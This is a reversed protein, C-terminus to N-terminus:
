AEVVKELLKVLELSVGEKLGQILGELTVIRSYGSVIIGLVFMDRIETGVSEVSRFILSGGGDPDTLLLHGEVLTIRWDDMAPLDMIWQRKHPVKHHFDIILCDLRSWAAQSLQCSMQGNLGLVLTTVGDPILPLLDEINDRTQITMVQGARSVSDAYMWVDHESVLWAGNRNSFVGRTVTNHLLAIEGDRAGLYAPWHGNTQVTSYYLRKAGTDYWAFLDDFRGATLVPACSRGAILQLLKNERVQRTGLGFFFDSEVGVIRPAEGEFLEIWVHERTLGRLGAGEPAIRTFSWQAAVRQMAPLRDRHLLRTGNAFAAAFAEPEMFPQRYVQGSASDWLWAAKKDPTQALLQLSQSERMDAILLRRGVCWVRLFANGPVNQVGSVEFGESALEEALALVSTYWEFGDGVAAARALWDGNLAVLQSEDTRSLQYLMGDETLAIHRQEQFFVEVVEHPLIKAAPAPPEDNQLTVRQRYLSRHRQDYFLFSDGDADQTNLFIPNVSDAELNPRIVLGDDRRLWLSIPNRSDEDWYTISTLPACQYDVVSVSDFPALKSNRVMLEYDWFFYSLSVTNKRQLLAKQGETLKGIVSFLSLENAGLLYTMKMDRGNRLVVKQVIRILGGELEQFASIRSGPLPDMLRYIRNVQGTTVDTRWILVENPVYYYAYKDVIAGLCAAEQYAPALGRVFLFRDEDRDYQATTKVPKLPDSYPVPFDRIATYRGALRMSRALERLSAQAASANSGSDISIESILLRGQEWDVQYSQEDLQLLLSSKEPVHVQIAGLQVRAGEIKVDGEALWTASLAWYMSSADPTKVLTIARVGEALVVTCQGGKGLIEYSLYNHLERPLKPVRLFRNRRDLVVNVLTQSYNPILQHLVYETPFKYFSFWFQREGESDNELKLATEFHEWRSTSGPLAKYDFGFYCHPMCPLVVVDFDAADPIASEHAYGLSERISISLSRDPNGQPPHLAHPIAAFINLVGGYRLLRGELDLHTVVVYPSICLADDIRSFGGSRYGQEILNLYKGVQRARELIGSFGEVLAGIGVALGGLIVSAGGLFAAATGAGVLSAGLGGLGAVLGASDFALQTAFQAIQADNEANALLYIDFGVAALQLINGVGENAVHGLANLVVPSTTRAVLVSNTFATRVLNILEVADVVIGHALQAYSLYGHLRVASTLATTGGDTSERDKLAFLLAQIAFGANLTHVAGADTPDIMGPRPAKVSLTQYIDTLYSKITDLHVDDTVVRRTQSADKANVLTIERLGTAGTKLSEFVPVFDRSLQHAIQLRTTASEIQRAWRQADLRALGDGLRANESLSRVRLAAHHQWTEVSRGGVMLERSLLDGVTMRSPLPKEAISSGNLDIVDFAANSVEGVGYLRAIVDDQLFSTIGQQLDEARMFAYLGFNPDYFRYSTEGQEVVKSVLMSHNDTNLMLSGTSTKAKLAQMAASLNVAAAKKGFQSMPVGCLEDLVHLLAHTEAADPSLNAIALKGILAREATSGSELAAAMVLALPYCRRGPDGCGRVLLEQPLQKVADAGAQFFRKRVSHGRQLISAQYENRTATEIRQVHEGWQRVSLPEALAQAKLVRSNESVQGSWSSTKHGAEFMAPRRNFLTQEILEYRAFLGRDQTSEALAVTEKWAAAFVEQDLTPVGFLGGFVVRHLPSLQEALLKGGAIRALAENMNGLSEAGISAPLESAPQALIQQRTEFDLAIRDNFTIDGSLRDNMARMFPAGLDDLLQQLVSTLLVPKGEIVPWGQKFTLTQSHLLENLNGTYRAKYKGDRWNQQEKELWQEPQKVNEVWGSILEEETARNYGTDLLQLRGRVEAVKDPICHADVFDEVGWIAAGPGSLSITGQAQPDIGDRHYGAIATALRSVYGVYDTSANQARENNKQVIDGTVETAFSVHWQKGSKVLAQEVKLLLDYNSRIRQMISSVMGSEPHAMIFANMELRPNPAGLRVGQEPVTLGKAASFVDSVKLVTEAFRTLAQLQEAPIDKVYNKYRSRERGPMLTPNKDLLLQLVGLKQEFSFTKINVEGMQDVLPPLYDLDSYTGGELSMAQLRVVDSAAALNGRFSVEREYVDWLFHSGFAARADRVRVQEGAMALHSELYRAKAAELATRDQGYAKVLLEIRADDAKIGQQQAAKIHEFMQQRLVVVRKEILDVLKTASSLATGGSEMAHAKAALTIIRNTDFAMLADPDYWLNLTHGDNSLVQKWINFYDRQNDGFLAGGVWVFHMNKPVPPHVEALIAVTKEIRAVYAKTDANAKRLTDTMPGTKQRILSVLTEQFLKAPALLDSLRDSESAAKYYRSLAAHEESGAFEGLDGSFGSLGVATVFDQGTNPLQMLESM